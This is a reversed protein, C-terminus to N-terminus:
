HNHYFIGYAMILLLLRLICGSKLLAITMKEFAMSKHTRFTSESIGMIKAAVKTEAGSFFLNLADKQKQSLDPDINKVGDRFGKEILVEKVSQDFNQLSKKINGLARQGDEKEHLLLMCEELAKKLLLRFLEDVSYDEMNKVEYCLYGFAETVAKCADHMNGVKRKIFHCLSGFYGQLLEEAKTAKVM